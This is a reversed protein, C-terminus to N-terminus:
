LYARLIRFGHINVPHTPSYCFRNASRCSRAHCNWGGGRHVRKSGSAPGAPDTIENVTYFTEKFWDQCWEWVNGCMDYLGWANPQKGGVEQTKSNSNIWYWAYDGIQESAEDDGWYFRTTTGARCAYEWEAESPLRYTGQNLQNLKQIFEQTDNWSVQEVPLNAGKFHSPNTGMVAEWQAQTIPYKGLFFPQSIHVTHQPGENPYREKETEPSGMLFSGAPLCIMELPTAGTPLDLSLTFTEFPMDSGQLSQSM